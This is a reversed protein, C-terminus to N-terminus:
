QYPIPEDGGVFRARDGRLEVLCDHQQGCDTWTVRAYVPARPNDRLERVTQLVADLADAGVAASFDLTVAYSVICNCRRRPLINRLVDRLAM